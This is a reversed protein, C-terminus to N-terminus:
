PAPCRAASEATVARMRPEIVASLTAHQGPGTIKSRLVPENVETAALVIPKGASLADNISGFTGNPVADQPWPVERLNQASLQMGFRLPVSAVVVSRTAVAPEPPELTRLRMEAQRNLWAQAVFVAMLGFVGAFGTTVVASTRVM